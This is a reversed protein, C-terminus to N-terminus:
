LIRMYKNDGVKKNCEKNKFVSKKFRKRLDFYKKTFYRRHKAFCLMKKIKIFEDKEFMKEVFYLFLMCDDEIEKLSINAQINEIDNLLIFNIIAYKRIKTYYQINEVNLPVYELINTINNSNLFKKYM